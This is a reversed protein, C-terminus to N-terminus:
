AVHKRTDGRCRGFLADRGPHRQGLQRQLTEDFLRDHRVVFVFDRAENDISVIAFSKRLDPM